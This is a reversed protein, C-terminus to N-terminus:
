DYEHQLLVKSNTKLKISWFDTLVAKGDYGGLVFLKDSSVFAAFGYRPPLKLSHAVAHIQTTLVTTPSLILKGSEM